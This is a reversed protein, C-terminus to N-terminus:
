RRSSNMSKGRWAQLFQTTTLVHIIEVAFKVSLTLIYNV